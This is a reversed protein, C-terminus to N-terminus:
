RSSTKRRNQTNLSAQSSPRLGISTHRRNEGLANSDNKPMWGTKPMVEDEYSDDDEDDYRKSPRWASKEPESEPEPEIDSSMTLDVIQSAQPQSQSPRPQSARPISARPQSPPKESNRVKRNGSLSRQKQSAKPTTEDDELVDDLADMPKKHRVDKRSSKKPTVKEWKLAKQSSAMEEITPLILDESSPDDELIGPSTRLTNTENNSKRRLLVPEDIENDSMVVDAGKSETAGDSTASRASESVMNLQLDHSSEDFESSPGKPTDARLDLSDEFNFEPQHGYDAIQSTFSSGVSLEPYKVSAIPQMEDAGDLGFGFGPVPSTESTEAESALAASKRSQQKQQKRAQWEQMAKPAPPSKVSTEAESETYRMESAASLPHFSPDDQPMVRPSEQCINQKPSNSSERPKRTPSSGLGTFKPSYLRNLSAESVDMDLALRELGDPSTMGEPRMLKTLSSPVSSHFGGEKMLHSWKQRGEESVHEAENFIAIAHSAQVEASPTNPELVPITSPHINEVPGEALADMIDAEVQNEASPTNSRLVSNNVFPIDDTISEAQADIMSERLQSEASPTTPEIAAGIDQSEAPAKSNSEELQNPEAVGSNLPTETVHSFQAEPENATERGQSLAFTDFNTIGPAQSAVDEISPPEQVVKPEILNDFTLYLMGDDDDENMENDDPVEFKSYLREGTQPDYRKNSQDRDRMALNLQLEGGDTLAIVIATQYTSIQPQWNTADSMILQKFAITMGVQAQGDKLDPLTSPDEPLMLLDEPGQSAGGTENMLQQTIEGELDDSQPQENLASDDYQSALSDDQYSPEYTADLYEQEEAYNHKGKRRKQKKSTRSNEHYYQAQDRQDQKRKGGRDGKYSVQQQPDWRQEFPFPPESLAVDDQVCEVARYNIKLRWADPDEQATETAPDSCPQEAIKKPVLPRVGKMLDSRVREEDKKTKPAKIGLAGFLLRKGAGLDLKARRSSMPQKSEASAPPPQPSAPPSDVDAMELAISSNATETETGGNNPATAPHEIGDFSVVAPDAMEQSAVVLQSEAITPQEVNDTFERQLDVSDQLEVIHQTEIVQQSQLADGAPEELGTMEADHGSEAPLSQSATRSFKSDVEVGGTAVSELLQQRRRQFEPDHSLPPRTQESTQNPTRGAKVEGLAAFATEAPTTEDVDLKKYETLQTGAPLIGKKILRNLVNANRRRQNRAHTRTRGQGPSIGSQVESKNAQSPPTTKPIAPAPATATSEQKSSKEEPSEDDDSSSDSSSESESESSSTDDDSGKAEGNEEDSSDSSDESSSADEENSESSEDDSDEESEEEEEVQSEKDIFPTSTLGKSFNPDLAFRVSKNSTVSASRRPEALPRISSSKLAEAMVSLAKGSRNSGPPLGNQDYYDILANEAPEVQMSDVIEPEHVSPTKSKSRTKLVSLKNENVGQSIETIVSKPKEPIFGRAMAEYAEGIDESGNFVYKCVALPSKPFASHLKRIQARTVQDEIDALAPENANDAAGDNPTSDIPPEGEEELEGEEINGELDEESGEEEDADEDEGPAFDDDDEEDDDEFDAHLVLQRNNEPEEDDAEKEKLAKYGETDGDDENYEIRQRKRPPINVAPRDGAKRLLPRGWPVGDVLHRGDTSIQVRGSVRRIKIDQSLLPRIIVEDEDKIVSALHQFHLCEYNAGTSGKVEVAYDDLGWQGDSEIPITDNVQELLHYVTPNSTTDIAWIVLTDPLRHRRVTLRLRM